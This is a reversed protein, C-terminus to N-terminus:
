RFSRFFERVDELLLEPEELAAFHGGRPMETWRVINFHPEVWHRPAKWPEKPFVAVATPVTIRTGPLVSSRDRFAEYYLRAASAISNPAWYFMLNTLLVDKGFKADPDGDCDSWTRFKEVVWAALGAPSDAQAVAVSVPKTGQIRSYGTELADWVARQQLLAQDEASPEAPPPVVVFNVHLARVETPFSEAMKTSVIAGWDGGQLGWSEYGLVDRMLTRFARAIRAPNWGRERPKGSFGYGPLAPVVVDFADEPSGGHAAPDTLPGILRFFEFISGPWGHILMLPFPSPGRGRVHWFHIDVGDVSALFQPYANLAEEHERWDYGEAWYACLDRLYALDTGEEWGSGPVVEPWRTRRLRERLDELVSDPVDIRFPRPEMRGMM